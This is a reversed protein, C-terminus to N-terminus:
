AKASVAERLKAEGFNRLGAFGGEVILTAGLYLQPVPQHGNAKMLALADPNTTVDITKFAFDHGTLWAKASECFPCNPKSYLTIM